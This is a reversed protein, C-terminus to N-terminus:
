CLIQTDARIRLPCPPSPLNPENWCSTSTMRSHILFVYSAIILHPSPIHLYTLEWIPIKGVRGPIHAETQILLDFMVTMYRRRVTWKLKQSLIKNFRSSESEDLGASQSTLGLTGKTEAERNIPNCSYTAKIKNLFKEKYAQVPRWGQM